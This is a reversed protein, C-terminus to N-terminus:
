KISDLDDLMAGLSRLDEWQAETLGEAGRFNAGAALRNDWTRICEGTQIDWQKLTGDDSGSFLAGGSIGLCMVLDDHGTFTRICEGMQIDWQKLTGDDSGSFLDEGSFGLCNVWDQHGAFTRICEGTEIDWQKLTKDSSGSFLDRGSFGLCMVWNDHGAFTRICEGTQINWQKLTKDYSGSFLDGGSFGLCTILSDHGAFTRICEGMQIDWQKLTKNASGSFLDGGSVGLCMVLNDHGAFTRICEGTQIDWQKLTEDDSGSFLDGGSFGLCRVSDDHGAFTRICEGTQIDWQKLTKDDSGSFLNGGSFGLCNVSRKHGPFIQLNRGTAIEWLRIKGDNHGSILIQHDESIVIANCGSLSPYTMVSKQLDSGALDTGRLGAGQLGVNALRAGRLDQYELAYANLRVLLTGANGGVWGTEIEGKGRTWQMLELLGNSERYRPVLDVMMVLLDLVAKTLPAQGFTGVLVGPEESVFREVVRVGDRRWYGSWRYEGRVGVQESTGAQPLDRSRAAGLFDEHLLGLEAAFKYAVFFELMSRHAPGYNGDEDRVLLTQGLMDYHWYDLDKAEVGFWARVSEKFESYHLSMRDSALMQWSLECLFYLKDALCTFTRESEIDREMKQCLAYYYVRAMDVPQGRELREELQDLAELLLETMVPRKALAWLTENSRIREVTKITTQQGLVREVQEDTFPMLEITQFTPATMPKNAISAPLQGDFMVKAARADPFHETRCTLIVRAGPEIVRALQWFNNGMKQKDIKAAMEDFGDFIILLKGLKNLCSFVEKNLRRIGHRSFFFEALVNEVDIAKAYDRLTIVLPLRPRPMSRAKAAEYRQLAQWAYHLVLWTKGTGFEGLVSVHRSDPAALWRDIFGDVEGEPGQQRCNLAVYRDPIQQRLVERKLWDIYPAFDAEQELLEDFTLCQYRRYREEAMLGKVAGSVWCSTVLWGEDAQQVECVAELAALDALGIERAIGRVVVRDFGRRQPVQVVWAFYDPQSELQQEVQFRLAKFWEAMARELDLLPFKAMPSLDIPTAAATVMASLDMVDMYNLGVAQCIAMFTNQKLPKRSWFRDLSSRSVQAAEQWEIGTKAWGKQKRAVEVREKGSFSLICKQSTTGQQAM